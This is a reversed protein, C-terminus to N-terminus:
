RGSIQTVNDFSNICQWFVVLTMQVNQQIVQGHMHATPVEDQEELHNEAPVLRERVFRQVTALLIDFSESDLAM